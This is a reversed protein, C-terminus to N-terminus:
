RRNPDTHEILQEAQKLREALFDILMRVRTPMQEKTPFVIWTAADQVEYDELVPGLEGQKLSDVMYYDTM